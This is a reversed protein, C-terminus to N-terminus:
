RDEGDGHTQSPKRGTAASGIRRRRRSLEEERALVIDCWTLALTKMWLDVEETSDAFFELIVGNGFLVRFRAPVRSDGDSSSAETGLGADRLIREISFLHFVAEPHETSGHYVKM